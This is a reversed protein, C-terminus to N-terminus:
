AMESVETNLNVEGRKPTWHAENAKIQKQSMKQLAIHLELRCM